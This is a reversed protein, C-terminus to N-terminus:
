LVSELEAESEMLVARPKSGNFPGVVGARELEDVIKGARAYGVRLKRQLMSVSGSQTKIIVRAAEEFLDDRDAADFNNAENRNKLITSPLQYPMSYGSQDGIHECIREIEDTSIFSNQIRIPKPTGPSLYLLDGNGLLKEAGGMDLITRSDIKSAVLFGIRAPFNAKIIGTIVDVSPRQTALILHIGIARAKQALRIIPVEIEKSATLMLDALEDIVCVIYPMKRHKMSSDEDYKGDAVKKNYDVINRQGVNSLITYREEMELVLSKLISVADDPETVILDSVDPTSALYHDTLASYQTLEVKKPDIVVFKLEDPQKQYLLSAIITNIGVSKGSGTSGAILLHPMKALDAIFVDGSITKGLALPLHHDSERFKKTNVVSSFSVLSPNSNPIEIGVTGKGPIPAIIRIGKAKLAMALDDSLNEIKSIKIGAAPVFEYQTVVPGPTVSLNEINIKFTELKERLIQANMKLEAEDVENVEYNQELLSLDPPTYNIKQDHIYTCIPSDSEEEMDDISVPNSARKFDSNDDETEEVTVENSDVSNIEVNEVPQNVTEEQIDDDTSNLSLSKTTYYDESPNELVEKKNIKLDEEKISGEIEEIDKNKEIPDAKTQKKKKVKNKVPEKVENKVLNSKQEKIKDKASDVANITKDFIEETNLRFGFVITGVLGVLFIVFSGINGLLSTLLYSLYLGISGAWEKPFPDIWELHFITGMLGSFVLAGLFYFLTDRINEKTVFSHKLLDYAWRFLVLPLFIAIFGFTKNYIFYSIYAGILGLWNEVSEAKIQAIEDGTVLGIVESSEMQITSEDEYSYSILAILLFFSIIFLLFSFIKLQKQYSNSNGLFSSKTKKKTAKAM